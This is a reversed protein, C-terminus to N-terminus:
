QRQLEYDIFEIFVNLPQAGVLKTGNVFFTPTGSVGYWEGDWLDLDVEARHRASEFCGNFQGQDLGLRKALDLLKRDSLGTSQNAFLADHYSWFKGQDDACESALAAKDSQPGLTPYDRFVYRVKSGYRDLLADLTHDSFRKCYFCQYDSFEVITVPASASGLYPDDDARPDEERHTEEPPAASAALLPEDTAVESRALRAPLVLLAGAGCMMVLAVVGLALGINILSSGGAPTTKESPMEM